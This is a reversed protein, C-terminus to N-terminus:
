CREDRAKRERAEAEWACTSALFQQKWEDRERTLRDTEAQLWRITDERHDACTVCLAGEVPLHVGNDDVNEISDGCRCIPILCDRECSM